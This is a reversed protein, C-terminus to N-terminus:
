LSDKISPLGIDLINMQPWPGSLLCGKEVPWTKFLKKNLRSLACLNHVLVDLDKPQWVDEFSPKGAVALGTRSLVVLPFPPVTCGFMAFTSLLRSGVDAGGVSDMTVMCAVPKGVFVDTAELPTIIEIFRQLPSGCSSWYNGTTILIADAKKIHDVLDEITGSYEALHIKTIQLDSNLKIKNDIIFNCDSKSGRISGNLILLNVDRPLDKIRDFLKKDDDINEKSEGDTINDKLSPEQKNANDNPM